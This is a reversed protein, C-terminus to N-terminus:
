KALSNSLALIVTEGQRQMTAERGKASRLAWGSHSEGTRLRVIGKTTEDLFIAIDETEGAITGILALLPRRPQNTPPPPQALPQVLPPRVPPPPRRTSSFIPREQTATLSALPIDSMPNISGSTHRLNTGDAHPNLSAPLTGSEVPMAMPATLDHQGASIDFTAQKPAAPEQALANVLAFGAALGLLAVLKAYEISCFPKM